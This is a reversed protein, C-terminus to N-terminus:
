LIVELYILELLFECMKSAVGVATLNELHIIGLFVKRILEGNEDSESSCYRVSISLQKNSCIDSTEDAMISYFLQKHILERLRENHDINASLVILENQIRLSLYSANRACRQLHKAFIIDGAQARFAILNKLNRRHLNADCPLRDDSYERLTRNQSALFLICKAISFLITKYEDKQHQDVINLLFDVNRNLNTHRTIFENAQIASYQHHQTKEHAKLTATFKKM